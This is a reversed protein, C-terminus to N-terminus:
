LFYIPVLEGRLYISRSIGSLHCHKLFPSIHTCFLNHKLREEYMFPRIIRLTWVM